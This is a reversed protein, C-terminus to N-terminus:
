FKIQVRSNTASEYYRISAHIRDSPNYDSIVLTMVKPLRPRQHRWHPRITASWRASPVRFHQIATPGTPTASRRCPTCRLQRTWGTHAEARYLPNSEQRTKCASCRGAPLAIIKPPQRHPFRADAWNKCLQTTSWNPPWPHQVPESIRWETLTSWERLAVCTKTSTRIDVRRYFITMWMEIRIIWNVCEVTKIEDRRDM